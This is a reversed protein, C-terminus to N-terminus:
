DRATDKTWGKLSLGQRKLCEIQVYAVYLIIYIYVIVGSWEM